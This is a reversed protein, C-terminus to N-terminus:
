MFAALATSSVCFFINFFQVEILTMFKGLERGALNQLDNMNPGFTTLVVKGNGQGIALLVEENEPLHQPCIDVCKIYFPATATALLHAYLKKSM